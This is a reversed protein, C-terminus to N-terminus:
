GNILQFIILLWLFCLMMGLSVILICGFIQLVFLHMFKGLKGNTHADWRFDSPFDRYRNGDSALFVEHGLAVFGDKLCNALGSYEGFLLIKM